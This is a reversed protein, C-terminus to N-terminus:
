AAHEKSNPFDHPAEPGLWVGGALGGTARWHDEFFLHNRVTNLLLILGDRHNWTRDDADDPFWLCLSDGPLRHKSMAGKDAFVRPYNMPELGYTDYSPREHFEIQVPAPERRGPLELGVHRYVLVRNTAARGARPALGCSIQGAHEPHGSLGAELDRQFDIATGYWSNSGGRRRINARRPPATSRPVDANM